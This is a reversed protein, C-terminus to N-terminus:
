KKKDKLFELNMEKYAKTKKHDELRLWILTNQIKKSTKTKESLTIYEKM